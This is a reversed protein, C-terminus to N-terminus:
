YNHLEHLKEPYQLDVEMFYGISSEEYYIKTFGENFQSTEEVSKFDNIPLKTVNDTWVFEKCGM